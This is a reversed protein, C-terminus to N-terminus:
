QIIRIPSLPQYIYLPGSNIVTETAIHQCLRVTRQYYSRDMGQILVSASTGGLRETWIPRCFGM